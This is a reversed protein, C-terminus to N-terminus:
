FHHCSNDDEEDISLQELLNSIDASMAPIVNLVTEWVVSLNM